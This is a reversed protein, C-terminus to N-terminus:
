KKRHTAKNIGYFVCTSVFSVLSARYVEFLTPFQGSPLLAQLEFGLSVAFVIVFNAVAYWLSNGNENLGLM